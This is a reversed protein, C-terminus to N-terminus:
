LRNNRFHRPELWLATEIVARNLHPNGKPAILSESLQGLARAAQAPHYGRFVLYLRLSLFPRRALLALQDAENKLDKRADSLANLVDINDRGARRAVARWLSFTVALSARVDRRCRELRIVPGVLRDGLWLGGLVTGLSATAAM